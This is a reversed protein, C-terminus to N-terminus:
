NNRRVKYKSKHEQPVEFDVKLQSVETITTIVDGERLYAKSFNRMGLQGSFPAIVNAM